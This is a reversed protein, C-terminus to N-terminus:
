GWTLGLAYSITSEDRVHVSIMSRIKGDMPGLLLGVCLRSREEICRIASQGLTCM